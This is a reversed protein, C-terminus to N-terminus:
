NYTLATERILKVKTYMQMLIQVFIIQFWDHKGVNRKNQQDFKFHLLLCM